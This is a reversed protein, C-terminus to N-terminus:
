NSFYIEYVVEGEPSVETGLPVSSTNQTASGWDIFINGNPMVQVRGNSPTRIDPTHRYEWALTATM